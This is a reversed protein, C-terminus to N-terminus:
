RTAGERHEAAAPSAADDRRGDQELLQLQALDLLLVVLQGVQRRRLEALTSGPARGRTAHRSSGRGARGAAGRGAGARPRRGGARAPGGGAAGGGGGAPSSAKPLSAVAIRCSPKRRCGLWAVSRPM